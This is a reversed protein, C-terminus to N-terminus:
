GLTHPLDDRAISKRLLVFMMGFWIFFAGFPLWFCFLGSWAFPGTKFFLLLGGPVFFLSLWLNAYGSWRPFLPNDSGDALIAMGLSAFQVVGIYVTILFSIWAFDNLMFTLAPDRDPRFITICFFVMPLFIVLCNCAGASVQTYVLASSIGPIRRVQDAILATWPVFLSSGALMFLFGLRIRNTDTQYFAAVEEATLTPNLPPVIGALPVMGICLMVVMLPGSWPFVNQYKPAM